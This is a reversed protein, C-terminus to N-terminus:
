NKFPLAELDIILSSESEPRHAVHVPPTLCEAWIPNVLPSSRDLCLTDLTQTYTESILARFAEITLAINELMLISEIVEKLSGLVDLKKHHYIWNLRMEKKLDSASLLGEAVAQKFASGNYITTATMLKFLTAAISFVECFETYGSRTLALPCLYGPTGAAGPTSFETSCSMGFDILNLKFHGENNMLLINGPKIDRHFRLSDTLPAHSFESVADILQSLLSIFFLGHEQPSHSYVPRFDLNSLDSAALPLILYGQSEHAFSGIPIVSFRSDFSDSADFERHAVEPHALKICVPLPDLGSSSHLLGKFTTGQGGKGFPAKEIHLSFSAGKHTMFAFTQSDSSFSYGRIDEFLDKYGLIATSVARPTEPAGFSPRRSLVPVFLPKPVSAIIKFM